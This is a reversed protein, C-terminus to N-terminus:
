RRRTALIVASNATVMIEVSLLRPHELWAVRLPDPKGKWDEPWHDYPTLDDLVALGGPRLAEIVDNMGRTKADRVDVFLMAFPEHDLITRWDGELVAVSGHDGFQTRAAEVAAPDHDITILRSDPSLGSAIWASGVGCGAGIEGITEGRFQSALVQLLHGVEDSCSSDFGLRQAAIHAARVMIPIKGPTLRGTM